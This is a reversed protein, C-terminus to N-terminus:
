NYVNNYHFGPNHVINHERDNPIHLVFQRVQTKNIKKVNPVQGERFFLDTSTIVLRQAPLQV